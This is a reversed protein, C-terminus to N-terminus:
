SDIASANAFEWLPSPLPPAAERRLLGREPTVAGRKPLALTSQVWARAGAGAGKPSPTPPGLGKGLGGVLVFLSTFVFFFV